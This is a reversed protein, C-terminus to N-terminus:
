LSNGVEIRKMVIDRVKHGLRQGRREFKTEPRSEPRQSFQGSGSLNKFASCQGMRELAEEAYPQWDTAFHLIGGTKLRTAVLQIFDITVLRRKHHRKKHWPDPFFLNLRDLTDPLVCHRLVEMADACFVRVNSLKDRELKLMLNGVGPHHVEIGIFDQQPYRRALELLAEGDGFGIELTLPAQRHFERSFDVPVVYKPGLGYVPWLEKMARQQGRTM